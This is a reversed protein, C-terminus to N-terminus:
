PGWGRGAQRLDHMRLLALMDDSCAGFREIVAARFEGGVSRTPGDYKRHKDALRLHAARGVLFNVLTPYRYLEVLVEVSATSSGRAVRSLMPRNGKIAPGWFERFAM